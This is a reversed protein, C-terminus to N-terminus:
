VDGRNIENLIGCLIEDAKVRDLFTKANELLTLAESLKAMHHRSANHTYGYEIAERVYVKVTDLAKVSSGACSERARSVLGYFEKLASL